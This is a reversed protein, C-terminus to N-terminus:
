LICKLHKFVRFVPFFETNNRNIIVFLLAAQVQCSLTNKTSHYLCCLFSHQTLFKISDVM